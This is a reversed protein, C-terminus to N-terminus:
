PCQLFDCVVVAVVCVVLGACLVLFLVRMWPSHQQVLVLLAGAHLFVHWLIDERDARDAWRLEWLPVGGTRQTCEVILVMAVYGLVLGLPFDAWVVGVADVVRACQLKVWSGWRRCARYAAFAVSAAPFCLKVVREVFVYAAPGYGLLCALIALVVM